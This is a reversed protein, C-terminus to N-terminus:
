ARVTKIHDLARGAQPSGATENGNQMEEVIATSM